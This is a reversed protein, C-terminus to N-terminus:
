LVILESITMVYFLEGTIAGHSADDVLNIYKSLTGKTIKPERPKWSKKREDLEAQPVDLDLTNKEAQHIM